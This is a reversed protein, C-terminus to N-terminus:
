NNGRIIEIMYSVYFLRHASLNYQSRSSGFLAQGTANMPGLLVDGDDILMQISNQFAGEDNAGGGEPDHLGLGAATFM